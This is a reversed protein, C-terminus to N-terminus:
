LVLLCLIVFSTLMILLRSLYEAANPNNSDFDQDDEQRHLPPVASSTAQQLTLMIGHSLSARHGIPSLPTTWGRHNRVRPTSPSQPNIFPRPSAAAPRTPIHRQRLGTGTAPEDVISSDYTSTQNQLRHPSNEGPGDNEPAEYSSSSNNERESSPQQQRKIPSFEHSRVYIPVLNTTSCPTKCVPCMRRVDGNDLSVDPVLGLAAREDPLMGPELWRYLCPWCYLHGCQTVVPEVVAEFCINCSFRSDFGYSKSDSRQSSSLIGDNRTESTRSQPNM